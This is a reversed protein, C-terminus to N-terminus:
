LKVELHYAPDGPPLFYKSLESSNKIADVFAAKKNGPVSSPAVDFISMKTPDCCHKSITTSGLENIKDTMAAKTETANKKAAKCSVYVDIVKDGNSSYLNKQHTAGYQELNDFMIRAQDEPKRVTSTIIVSKVNAKKMISLLVSKAKEHIHPISGTYTIKYESTDGNDSNDSIVPKCYEMQSWYKLEDQTQIDAIGDSQGNFSATVNIVAGRKLREKGLAYKQFAKVAEETKPGYIGTPSAIDLFKSSILMRQLVTIGKGAKYHDGSKPHKSDIAATDDYDGNKYVQRALPMELLDSKAEAGNATIKAYYYSKAEKEGKNVIDVQHNNVYYLPVYEESCMGSVQIEQKHDLDYDVGKYKAWLAITVTGLPPSSFEMRLLCLKEFDTNEDPKFYARKLPSASKQLVITDRSSSVVEYKKLAM